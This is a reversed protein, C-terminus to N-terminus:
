ELHERLRIMARDLIARADDPNIRLIKAVFTISRPRHQALGFRMTVVQLEVDTLADLAAKLREWSEATLAADVPGPRNDPTLDDLSPPRRPM